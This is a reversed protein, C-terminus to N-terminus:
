VYFGYSIASTLFPAIARVSRKQKPSAPPPCSGPAVRSLLSATWCRGRSSLLLTAAQGAASSFGPVLSGSPSCLLPRVPQSLRRPSASSQVALSVVRCSAILLPDLLKGHGLIDCDTLSPPVYSKEKSLLSTRRFNSHEQRDPCTSISRHHYYLM